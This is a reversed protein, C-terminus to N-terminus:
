CKSRQFIGLSCIIKKGITEFWNGILLYGNMVDMSQKLSFFGADDPMDPWQSYIDLEQDNVTMFVTKM